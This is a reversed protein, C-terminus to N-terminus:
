FSFMCRLMEVDIFFCTKNSMFYSLIFCFLIFPLSSVSKKFLGCPTTPIYVEGLHYLSIIILMAIYLRGQRWSQKCLSLLMTEFEWLEWGSCVHYAYSLVVSGPIYICLRFTLLRLRALINYDQRWHAPQTDRTTFATSDFFLIYPTNM